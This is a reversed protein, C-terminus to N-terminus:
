EDEFIEIEKWMEMVDDVSLQGELQAEVVVPKSPKSDRWFRVFQPALRKLTVADFWKSKNHSYFAMREDGDNTIIIVHGEHEPQKKRADNWRM